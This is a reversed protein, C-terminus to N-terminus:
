DEFSVEVTANVKVKHGEYNVMVKFLHGQSFALFILGTWKSRSKHGQYKVKVQINHHGVEIGVSLNTPWNTQFNDALFM